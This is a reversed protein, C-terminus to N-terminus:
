IHSPCRLGNVDDDSSTHRMNEKEEEEQPCPPYSMTIYNTNYHLTIALSFLLVFLNIFRAGYDTDDDDNM